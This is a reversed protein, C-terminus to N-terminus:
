VSEMKNKYLKTKEELDIWLVTMNILDKLNEIDMDEWRRVYHTEDNGLWSALKASTKINDNAIYTEIVTKLYLKKISEEQEPNNAKAYDKILFELAKRFGMGSIQDFGQNESNQSQNYIISFNPSINEIEDSFIVESTPSPISTTFYFYGSSSNHRFYSIFLKKCTTIPCQFAIQPSNNYVYGYKFLPDIGKQCHPCTDPLLDFHKIVPNNIEDYISYKIPM